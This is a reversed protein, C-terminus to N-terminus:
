HPSPIIYFHTKVQTPWYSTTVDTKTFSLWFFKTNQNQIQMNQVRLGFLRQQNSKWAEPPGRIVSRNEYLVQTLEGGLKEGPHMVSRVTLMPSLAVKLQWTLMIDWWNGWIKFIFCLPFKKSLLNSNCLYKGLIYLNQVRIAPLCDQYLSYLM